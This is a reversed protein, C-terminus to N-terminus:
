LALISASMGVMAGISRQHLNLLVSCSLSTYTGGKLARESLRVWLALCKEILPQSLQPDQWVPETMVHDVIRWTEAAAGM